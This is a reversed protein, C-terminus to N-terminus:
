IQRNESFYQTLTIAHFDPSFADILEPRTRESQTDQVYLFDCRLAHISERMGDVVTGLGHGERRSISTPSSLYDSIAWGM